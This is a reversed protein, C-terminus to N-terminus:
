ENLRLLAILQPVLRFKQEDNNNELFDFRTLFDLVTKIQCEPLSCHRKLDEFSHWDGNELSSVVQDVIKM